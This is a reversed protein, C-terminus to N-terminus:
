QELDRGRYFPLLFENSINQFEIRLPGLEVKEFIGLETQLSPPELNKYLQKNTLHYNNYFNWYNVGIIHVGNRFILSSFITIGLVTIQLIQEEKRHWKMHTERGLFNHLYYNSSENM